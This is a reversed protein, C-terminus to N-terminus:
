KNIADLRELLSKTDECNAYLYRLPEMAHIHRRKSMANVGDEVVTVNYGADALDRVSTSVCQDTYFGTVIVNEISLNRLIRDIPTGVMIGSCTKTLVIEGKLPEAEKCFETALSGPPYYMGASAHLRGTDEAGPLLSEIKVHIPKIGVQRCKNLIKEIKKLTEGEHEVQRDVIDKIEELNYGMDRYSKEIFERYHIKQADIIVLVTNKPNVEMKESYMLDKLKYYHDETFDDLRKDIDM